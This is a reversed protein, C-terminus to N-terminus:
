HPTKAKPFPNARDAPREGQDSLLGRGAALWARRSGEDLARFLAIAAAEDTAAEIPAQPDGIGDELWKPSVDLAIAMRLLNGGRLWTTDGTEISSIASQGLGCRKSLQIQTWGQALRIARVREGITKPKAM